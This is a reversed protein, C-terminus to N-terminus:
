LVPGQGLGTGFVEDVQNELSAVQSQLTEIDDELGSEGSSQLAELETNSLATTGGVRAFIQRFWKSWPESLFGAKNIVPTKFPVPPLAEAM